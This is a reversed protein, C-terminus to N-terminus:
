LSSADFAVTIAGLPQNTAPDAITMSVQVVLLGTSDDFDVDGFHMAGVGKPFTETFKAEDGQWYDSTTDTAAVNLGKDDMLIIEVIRGQAADLHGRLVRALPSEVVADITPHSPAGAEAAWTADLGSIADPTMVAHLTNAASLAALIQPDQAWPTVLEAVAARLTAPEAAEAARADGAPLTLGLLSLGLALPRIMGPLAIAPLRIEPMAISPMTIAPLTIAPLTFSHQTM